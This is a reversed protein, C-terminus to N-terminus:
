TPKPAEGTKRWKWRGAPPVAPDRTPKGARRWVTWAPCCPEEQVLVGEVRPSDEGAQSSPAEDSVAPPLNPEPCICKSQSSIMFMFNWVSVSWHVAAMHKLQWLLISWHKRDIQSGLLYHNQSSEFCHPFRQDGVWLHEAFPRHRHYELHDGM